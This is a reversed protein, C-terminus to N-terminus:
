IARGPASSMCDAVAMTLNQWKQKRILLQATRASLLAAPEAVGKAGTAQMVADSCSVGSVNNLEDKNYFDIPWGHHGAFDLLGQEEKKLDISALNRVAQV